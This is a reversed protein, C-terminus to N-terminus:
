KPRLGIIIVLGFRSDIVIFPDFTFSLLFFFVYCWQLSVLSPFSSLLEIWCPITLSLSMLNSYISSSSLFTYRSVRKTPYLKQSATVGDFNGNQCSCRKVSRQDIINMIRYESRWCGNLVLISFMKHFVVVCSDM